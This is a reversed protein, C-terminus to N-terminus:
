QRTMTKTFIDLIQLTASAHALTIVKHDFAKQISHYDVEIHKMREHYVPNVAIQIVGINNAHLPTSHVQSFDLKTFLGCLQIIKSCVIIM